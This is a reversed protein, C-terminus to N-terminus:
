IFASLGRSRRGRRAEGFEKGFCGESAEWDVWEGEWFVGAEM